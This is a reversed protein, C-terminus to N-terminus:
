ATKLCAVLRTESALGRLASTTPRRCVCLREALCISLLRLLVEVTFPHLSVPGLVELLLLAVVLVLRVTSLPALLSLAVVVDRTFLWVM